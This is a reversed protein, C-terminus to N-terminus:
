HPHALHGQQVASPPRGILTVRHRQDVLGEPVIGLAGVLLGVGPLVEVDKEAVLERHAGLILLCQPCHAHDILFHYEYALFTYIAWKIIALYQM